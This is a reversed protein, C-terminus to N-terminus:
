SCGVAVVSGAFKEQRQREAEELIARRFEPDCDFPTGAIDALAEVHRESRKIVGAKLLLMGLRFKGLIICRLASVRAGDGSAREYSIWLARMAENMGAVLEALFTGDDLRVVNVMWRNRNGWDRRIAAVKQVRLVPDSIGRTMYEAASKVSMGKVMWRLLEERRFLLEERLM